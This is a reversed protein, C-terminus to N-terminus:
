GESVLVDIVAGIFEAALPAVIANGYGKIEKSRVRDVPFTTGDVLPELGPEVPRWRGEPYGPEPRCHIWEPDAWFGGVASAAGPLDAVRRTGFRSGQGEGEARPIAGADRGSREVSTDGVSGAEGSREAAERQGRAQQEGVAELRQSADVLGHAAGDDALEGRRRRSNRRGIASRGHAGGLGRAGRGDRESEALALAEGSGRAESVAERSRRERLQVRVRELREGDAVAVIYLRQRIHPAGVGAACTDIAWCTYGEGELDSLVLDLWALGDKSSVQELFVVPPRRAKILRFYEPWLHREDDFGKRRGASSFSQCPPSGTFVEVDDGWGAQRLAYSWVAIGSFFHAQTYGELDEEKLDCISRTDVEGPAVHGAAILNRTWEAAFDDIENYLAPM